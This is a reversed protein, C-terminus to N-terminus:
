SAPVIVELIPEVASRFLAVLEEDMFRYDDPIDLVHVVKFKTECPFDSLLRQRHKGEMVLIVDAWEIDSSRIVQVASKATGRSRVSIRADNRYIAEATPSRWQNKSCVFLVKPRTM